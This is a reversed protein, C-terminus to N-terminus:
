TSEPSVRRTRLYIEPCHTSSHQITGYVESRPALYARFDASGAQV